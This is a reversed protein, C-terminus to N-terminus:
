QGGSVLTPSGKELKWTQVTGDKQRVRLGKSKDKWMSANPTVYGKGNAPTPTPTKGPPASAAPSSTAPAGYEMHSAGRGLSTVENEYANQTAQKAQELEDAAQKRGETDNPALLTIKKQYDKEAAALGQAKKAETGAFQGPTARGKMSDRLEAIEKMMGLRDYGLENQLQIRKELDDLRREAEQRKNDNNKETADAVQQRIGSIDKEYQARADTAEQQRDLNKGERAATFNRWSSENAANLLPVDRESANLQDLLPQLTRQRQADAQNLRRYTVGSAAPQAASPNGYGAATGVGFGLLRDYWHPKYDQANVPPVAAIKSEIDRRAGLATQLQAQSQDMGARAATIAPDDSPRPPQAAPAPATAPALTPMTPPQAMLTDLPSSERPLNMLLQSLQDLPPGAPQATGNSNAM